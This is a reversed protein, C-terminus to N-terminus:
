AANQVRLNKKHEQFVRMFSWRGGKRMPLSQANLIDAIERFSKKEQVKLFCIKDLISKEEPVSGFPRPGKRKM